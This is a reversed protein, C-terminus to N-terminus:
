IPVILILGIKSIFSLVVKRPQAWTDVESRRRGFFSQSNFQKIHCKNQAFTIGNADATAITTNNQKFTVVGTSSNVTATGLYTIVGNRLTWYQQNTLCLKWENKEADYNVVDANNTVYYVIDCTSNNGTRRWYINVYGSNNMSIAKATHYTYIKCTTKSGWVMSDPRYNGDSSNSTFIQMNYGTPLVVYELSKCWSFFNEQGNQNKTLYVYDSLVCNPVTFVVSVLSDCHRFQHGGNNLKGSSLAHCRTESTYSGGREFEIASSNITVATIASSNFAGCGLNKLNPSLNIVGDSTIKATSVMQNHNEPMPIIGDNGEAIMGFAYHGIREVQTFKSFDFNSLNKCLYFAFNGIEKLGNADGHHNQGSETDTFVPELYTLVADATVNKLEKDKVNCSEFCSRGILATKAPFVFTNDTFAAGKFAEEGFRILASSGFEFIDSALTAGRFAGNINVTGTVHSFDINELNACNGFSDTELTFETTIPAIIEKIQTGKFAEAEIGAYGTYTLDLVGESCVKFSTGADNDPVKFVIHANTISSFLGAPITAGPIRPLEIMVLNSCGEFAYSPTALMGTSGFSISKLNKSASVFNFTKNLYINNNIGSILPQDLSSDISHGVILSDIWSCMKFAGYLFYSAYQGDFKSYYVTQENINVPDDILDNSTKHYDNSDRNLVLLLASKNTTVASTSYLASTYTVSSNHHTYTTTTYYTSSISNNGFTIKRLSYNNTFASTEYTTVNNNEWFTCSNPINLIQQIKCFAFAHKGISTLSSPMVYDGILNNTSVNYASVKTIGYARVFAYEEITTISDPLQVATLDKYNSYNKYDNNDCYDASFASAGIVNVEFSNSHSDNVTAPVKATGSFESDHRDYLYNTMTAKGTDTGTVFSCNDKEVYEKSNGTGVEVEVETDIVTFTDKYLVNEYMPMKQNVGFHNKTENTQFNYGTYANIGNSTDYEESGITRWSGVIPDAIDIAGGTPSNLFNTYSGINNNIGRMKSGNGTVYSGSLYLAARSNGQLAYNQMRLTTYKNPLVLTQLAPDGGFDNQNKGSSWGITPQYKGQTLFFISRGCREEFVITRLSGNGAFTNYGLMLNATNNDTSNPSSQITSKKSGKFIVTELLPSGAFAQRNNYDGDTISLDYLTADSSTVGFGKFTRPFVLTTLEYNHSGDSALYDQHADGNLANNNNSLRGISFFAEEGIVKLASLEDNYYWRFDIVNQMHRKSASNSSGNGFAFSGVAELSYPLYLKKINVLSPLDIFAKSGIVKLSTLGNLIIRPQLTQGGQVLTEDVSCATNDDIVTLNTFASTFFANGIRRLSTPLYLRVLSAKVTDFANLAISRVYHGSGSPLENPVSIFQVPTGEIETPGIYSTIEVDNNIDTTYIWDNSYSAGSTSIDYSFQNGSATPDSFESRVNWRNLNRSLALWSNVTDTEGVLHFTLSSSCGNFARDEIIGIPEQNEDKQFFSNSIYVNKLATCNQFARSRIAKINMFALTSFLSSCGNFAEYEIEEISEPLVLEKMADCNFFCFSPITKLTCYTREGQNNDVIESCSCASSAESTTSSNQIAAKTLHKCSYFAGEGIQQVSSPITVTQIRSGLFAEYDIVTISAPIFVKPSKSKYFASRYIGTVPKNDYAEPIYIEDTSDRYSEKLSVAYEQDNNIAYYNFINDSAYLKGALLYKQSHGGNLNVENTSQCGAAFPVVAVIFSLFKILKKAKM